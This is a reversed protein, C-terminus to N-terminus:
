GPLALCSPSSSCATGTKNHESRLSIRNTGRWLGDVFVVGSERSYGVRHPKTMVRMLSPRETATNSLLQPRRPITKPPYRDRTRQASTTGAVALLVKIM